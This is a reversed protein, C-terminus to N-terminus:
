MVLPALAVLNDSMMFSLAILIVISGGIIELPGLVANWIDQLTQVFGAELASAVQGGIGTIWNGPTSVNGASTGPFLGNVLGQLWPPM